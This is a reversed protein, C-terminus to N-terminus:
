HRKVNAIEGISNNYFCKSWASYDAVTNGEYYLDRGSTYFRGIEKDNRNEDLAIVSFQPVDEGFTGVKYTSLAMAVDGQHYYRVSIDFGYKGYTALVNVADVSEDKSFSVTHGNLNSNIEDLATQTATSIPKDLDATNDVSGLGVDIKTVGHPNGSTKQSHEYAIKGRDGRYATSANEGLALSASIEAYGSGTWRYSKNTTTDIYIIGSEGTTPFNSVGEYKVVDDVYSPLQSSPVKGSNDLEALGGSAGKLSKDLKNSNLNSLAGTVTGDGISSIDTTGNIVNGVDQISKKGLAGDKTLFIQTDRDITSVEDYSTIEKAM